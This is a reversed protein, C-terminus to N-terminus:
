CAAVRLGLTGDLKLLRRDRTILQLGMAVATAVIIRDAPDGGFAEGFSGALQAVHPTVAAVRAGRREMRDIVGDMPEDIKLRGKRVLTAIEWASIPSWFLNGARAATNLRRRSVATLVDQASWLIACTDLLIM